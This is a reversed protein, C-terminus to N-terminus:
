TAGESLQPGQAPLCFGFVSGQGHSSRAWLAGGHREVIARTIALGLGSGSPQLERSADARYFPQFVHELEERTMGIGRDRVAVSVAPSCQHPANASSTADVVVLSGDEQALCRRAVEVEVPQESPSYDLANRLLNTLVQILKDGDALVAPVREILLHVRQGASDLLQAVHCIVAGLDLPSVRLRIQGSELRTMEQLEEVLTALRGAERNMLGLWDRQVDAPVDNSLMLETFGQLASLPTRIEHAAMSVFEIKLRELEHVRAEATPDAESHPMRDRIQLLALALHRAVSALLAVHDDRFRGPEHRGVILVGLASRKSVLPVALASKCPGRGNLGPPSWSQGQRPTQRQLADMAFADVLAAEPPLIEVAGEGRIARCHIGAADDSTLFLAAVDVHLLASVVNLAVRLVSAEDTQAFIQLSARSLAREQAALRLLAPASGEGLGSLLSLTQASGPYDAAERVGKGLAM